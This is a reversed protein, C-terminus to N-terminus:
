RRVHEALHTPPWPPALLWPAVCERVFADFEVKGARVGVRRERLLDATVPLEFVHAYATAFGTRGATKGAPATAPAAADGLLGSADRINVIGYDTARLADTLDRSADAEAALLVAGDIPQPDPLEVLAELADIADDGAPGMALLFVPVGPHRKRYDAIRQVPVEDGTCLQMAQPVGSDQLAAIVKAIQGFRQNRDCMVLVLGRGLQPDATRVKGDGCGGALCAAAFLAAALLLRDAGDTRITPTRPASLSAHNNSRHRCTM